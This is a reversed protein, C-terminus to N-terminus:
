FPIHNTPNYDYITGWNQTYYNDTFVYNQSPPPTRKPTKKKRLWEKFEGLTRVQRILDESITLYSYNEKLFQIAYNIDTKDM